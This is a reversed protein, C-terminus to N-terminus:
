EEHNNLYVNKLVYLTRKTKYRYEVLDKILIFTVHFIEIMIIFQKYM